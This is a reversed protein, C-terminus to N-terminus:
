RRMSKSKYRPWNLIVQICILVRESRRCRRRRRPGVIKILVSVSLRAVAVRFFFRFRFSHFHIFSRLSCRSSPVFRAVSSIFISLFMKRKKMREFKSICLSFSMINRFHFTLRFATFLANAVAKTM